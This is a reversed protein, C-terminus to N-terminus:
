RLHEQFFAVTKAVIQKSEDTVQDTDFGHIGAEYTVVTLPYGKGSVSAVYADAAAKWDPNEAGIKVLLIPVDGRLERQFPVQM